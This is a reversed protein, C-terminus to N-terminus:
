VIYIDSEIMKELKNLLEDDNSLQHHTYVLYHTYASVLTSLQKRDIGLIDYSANATDLTRKINM